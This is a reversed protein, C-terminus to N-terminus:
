AARSGRRSGAQRCRRQRRALAASEQLRAETEILRIWQALRERRARLEALFGAELDAFGAFDSIDVSNANM